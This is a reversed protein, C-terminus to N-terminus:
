AHSKASQYLERVEPDMDKAILVCRPYRQDAAEGLEQPTRGQAVFENTDQRYLYFVGNEHELRCPVFRESVEDLQELVQALEQHAGERLERMTKWVVFYVWLQHVIFGLVTGLVFVEIHSM